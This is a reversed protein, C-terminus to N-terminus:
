PREANKQNEPAEYFLVSVSAGFGTEDVEALREASEREIDAIWELTAEIAEVVDVWGEEDLRLSSRTLRREDRADLTGARLAAFADHALDELTTASASPKLSAPLRAWEEASPFPLTTARYFHELAGRRPETRVLEICDCELLAQIHYSVNGLPENLDLAIENPSADRENLIALAQARLPHSIAKALRPDAVARRPADQDQIRDRKKAM